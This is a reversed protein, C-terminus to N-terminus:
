STRGWNKAQERTMKYIGSIPYRFGRVKVSDFKAYIRDGFSTVGIVQAFKLDHSPFALEVLYPRFPTAWIIVTRDDIAQWSWPRTLISISPVEELAASTEASGAQPAAAAGVPRANTISAAGLSLALTLGLAASFSALKNLKHGKM